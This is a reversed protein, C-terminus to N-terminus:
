STRPDKRPVFLHWLWCLANYLKTVVLCYGILLLLLFAFLLEDLVLGVRTLTNRMTYTEPM